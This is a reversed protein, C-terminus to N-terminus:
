RKMLVIILLAMQSAAAVVNVLWVALRRFRIGYLIWFTYNLLFGFIFAPSLSTATSALEARIQLAIFVSGSFGVVSGAVEFIKEPIKQLYM